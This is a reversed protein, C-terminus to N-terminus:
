WKVPPAPGIPYPPAAERRRLRIAGAHPHPHRKMYGELRADNRAAVRRRVHSFANVFEALSADMLTLLRSQVRGLEWNRRSMATLISRGNRFSEEERAMENAFSL